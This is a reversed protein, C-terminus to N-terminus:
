QKLTDMAQIKNVILYPGRTKGEVQVERIGDNYLRMASNSGSVEYIRGTKTETLQLKCAEGTNSENQHCILTGSIAHTEMIDRSQMRTVAAPERDRAERGAFAIVSLGFVQVLLLTSILKKDM